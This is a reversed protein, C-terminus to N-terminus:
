LQYAWQVLANAVLEVKSKTIAHDGRDRLNVRKAIRRKRDRYADSEERKERGASRAARDRM